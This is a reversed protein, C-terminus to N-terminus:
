GNVEVWKKQRLSLSIRFYLFLFLINLVKAFLSHSRLSYSLSLEKAVKTKERNTEILGYKGPDIFDIILM